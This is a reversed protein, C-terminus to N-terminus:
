YEQIIHSSGKFPLIGLPLCSEFFVWSFSTSIIELVLSCKCITQAALPKLGTFLVITDM